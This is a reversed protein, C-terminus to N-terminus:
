KFYKGVTIFVNVLESYLQDSESRISVNQGIYSRDVKLGVLTIATVSSVFVNQGSGYYIRYGTIINAGDIDSPPSWSVEVPASSDSQTAVVDMPPAFNLVIHMHVCSRRNISRTDPVECCYTGTPFTNNRRHLRVVNPGKTVYFGAPGNQDGVDDGNPQFWRGTNVTVSNNCCQSNDTYCLLAEAMRDGINTVTVESNNAPGEGNLSLYVGIFRVAYYSHLQSILPFIKGTTVRITGSELAENGTVYVATLQPGVTATCTYNGVDSIGFPNLQTTYTYTTGPVPSQTPNDLLIGDRSLQVDVMLLSLDNVVIASNLWLTCTLTVDSGFVLAEPSSTLM